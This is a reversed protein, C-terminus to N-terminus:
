IWGETKAIEFVQEVNACQIVHPMNLQEGNDLLVIRKRGESYHNNQTNLTGWFPGNPVMIHHRYYLSNKAIDSITRGKQKFESTRVFSKGALELKAVLMRLPSQSHDKWESYEGSNPESDGILFEEFQGIPPSWASVEERSFCPADFLLHERCSFPNEFGMRRAVVGHHWLTYASWDYRLPSNVWADEANKWVNIADKHRQAWLPSEFSELLINPLDSVVERLQAHHHAGCFHVFLQSVHQKALARLLHLFILQDGLNFRNESYITRNM